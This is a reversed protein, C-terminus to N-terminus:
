NVRTVRTCPNAGTYGAFLICMEGTFTENTFSLTQTSTNNVDCEFHVEDGSEISLLGSVAGDRLMAVDPEPNKSQSDFQYVPIHEWDFSEYVSVREGGRRVIWAGFRENHAHYHGYMSILRSKATAASCKYELKVARGAAISMDAPSGTAAFTAMPATVDKQDMYWINVWVERLIPSDTVNIYHLNFSFQQRAPLEAGLGKNEDPVDLTGQPRDVSPRQSGGFSKAAGGFESGMDGGPTWGDTLDQTPMSILMHHGGPRMRWNARYYYHAATATSNINYFATTEDGGALAFQGPSAYDDPGVHVQTGLAEAPPLICYQDGSFSTHYSPDADVCRVAYPNNLENHFPACKNPLTSGGPSNKLGRVEFGRCEAPLDALPTSPDLMMAPKDSAPPTANPSGPMTM